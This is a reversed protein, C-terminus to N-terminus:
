VDSRWSKELEQEEKDAICSMLLGLTAWFFPATIPSSLGFFAQICYGLVAGGLVAVETHKTSRHLWQIACNMLMALYCVLAFVGQNVLIHLYENHANDVGSQIMIGLQESYRQFGADSRLGLTDPGGGFFFHEPVLEMTKRWIYLRSSGFTDDWHGHMLESAEYVIGGINEGFFYIAVICLLIILLVMLWAIKRKQPNSVLVPVTLLVSGILAVVGAAVFAKLLTMLCLALPITLFFRKKSTGKVIAIWFMPITLSLVASLLDVNGITGLFEGAYLKNGDFYSMGEPYLKLPNRGTTQILALGCNLCMATAFLWLYLKKPKGCVSVALCCACYLTITILGERRNGGWIAQNRYESLFTSIVSCLWFAILMKQSFHLSRWIQVPKLLPKGGVAAWELRAILLIILYGISLTLFMKYKHSTIQAYGDAGTYLLFITVLCILYISTINEFLATSGRQKKM